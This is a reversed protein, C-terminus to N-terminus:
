VLDLSCELKGETVDHALCVGDKEAKTINSSFSYNTTTLHADGTFSFADMLVQAHHKKSLSFGPISYQCNNSSSVEVEEGSASFTPASGAQTGIQVSNLCISKGDTVTIQGLKIDGDAKVVNGKVVYENSPSVSEGYVNYAVVSGDQGVAEATEASRGDSDSVCVLASTDSIGFWDTKTIFPAMTAM